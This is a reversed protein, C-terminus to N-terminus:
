TTATTPVPTAVGAERRVFLLISLALVWALFLIGAFPAAPTPVAVGIVVGIWGFWAWLAGTRAIALGNGIAFAAGGLLLPFFLDSSLVNLAQAASPDLKDPVDTLAFVLGALIGAGVALMVSGAFGIMAVERGADRRRLHAWVAAAFFVFVLGSLALIGNGAVQRSKNDQFFAIVTKGSVDSNPTNGSLLIGAAFMAVFVVGILPTLWGLRDWM